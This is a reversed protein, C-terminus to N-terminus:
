KLDKVWVSKVWVAKTQDPVIIENEFRRSFFAVADKKDVHYVDVASAGAITAFRKAVSKSTTYAIWKQEAVRAARYLVLRKPFSKFVQLEKPKMLCDPEVKKDSFWETWQEIPAFEHDGVWLTSLIFCYPYPSLKWAYQKFMAVRKLGDNSKDAMESWVGRDFPTLPDMSRVSINHRVLDREASKREKRDSIRGREMVEKRKQIEEPTLVVELGPARTTM